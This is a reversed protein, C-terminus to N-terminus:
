REYPLTPIFFRANLLAKGGQRGIKSVIGQTSNSIGRKTKKYSLKTNLCVYQILLIKNVIYWYVKKIVLTIEFLIRNTKTKIM